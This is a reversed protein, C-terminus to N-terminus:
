KAQLSASLYKEVIRGFCHAYYAQGLIRFSAFVSSVGRTTRILIFPSFSFTSCLSCGSFFLPVLILRIVRVISPPSVAVFIRKNVFLHFILRVSTVCVRGGGGVTWWQLLQATQVVSRVVNSENIARVQIRGRCKWNSTRVFLCRIHHVLPFALHQFTSERTKRKRTRSNVLTMVVSPSADVFRLKRFSAWRIAEM